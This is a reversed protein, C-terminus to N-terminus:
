FDFGMMLVGGSYTFERTLNVDSGPAICILFGRKTERNCVARPTKELQHFNHAGSKQCTCIYLRAFSDSARESVQRSFSGM